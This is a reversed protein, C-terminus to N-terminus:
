LAASTWVSSWESRLAITWPPNSGGQTRACWIDYFFKVAFCVHLAIALPLIYAYVMLMSKGHTPPPPRLQRLFNVRDIWQASWCYAALLLYLM